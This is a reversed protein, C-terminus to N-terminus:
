RGCASSSNWRECCPRRTTCPATSSAAARIPRYVYAPSRHSDVHDPGNQADDELVFIATKPWFRSKSVAEVIMGSRGTTTPWPSLPHTRGAAAGSTHDNGIRMFILRPMAGTKEWENLDDLFVKARDIDPYDMDFRPVEYQHGERAHPRARRLDSAPRPSRRRCTPRGGATTACASAPPTRTRGSTDPRRSRPRNAAKMTTRGAAARTATPGCRRCTTRRSRPPPGTTAM